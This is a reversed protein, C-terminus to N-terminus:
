AAKQGFFESSPCLRAREEGGPAGVYGNAHQALYIELLDLRPGLAGWIPWVDLDRAYRGAVDASFVSTGEPWLRVRAPPQWTLAADKLADASERDFAKVAEVGAM